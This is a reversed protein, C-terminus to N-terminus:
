PLISSSDTLIISLMRWSDLCDVSIVHASASRWVILETATKTPVTVDIKPEKKKERKREERENEREREREKKKERERERDREVDKAPILPAPTAAFSLFQQASSAGLPSGEMNQASSHALQVELKPSQLCQRAVGNAQYSHRFLWLAWFHM